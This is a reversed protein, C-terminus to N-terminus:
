KSMWLNWDWFAFLARDFGGAEPRATAAITSHAMRLDGRLEAIEELLVLREGRLREAMRRDSSRKADKKNLQQQASRLQGSVWAADGEARRIAGRKAGEPNALYMALEREARARAKVEAEWEAKMDM